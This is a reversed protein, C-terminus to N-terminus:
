SGGAPRHAFPWPWARFSLRFHIGIDQPDDIDDPYGEFPCAVYLSMDLAEAPQWRVGLGASAITEDSLQRDVANSGGGIDLFPILQVVGDDVNRQLAQIPLHAVPVRYELQAFWGRDRVLRNERYGRVTDIGGITIQEAPLLPDDTWQVGARLGLQHDALPAYQFLSGTAFPLWVTDVQGFWAFFKSCAQEAGDADRCQDSAGLVDLGLSFVSQAAFALERGEHRWTQGFRVVSVDGKGNKTGPAFSFDEGLLESAGHRREGSLDLTVDDLPTRWVPMSLGLELGGSDSKIDLDDFPDEIVKAASYDAVVRFRLDRANLPREYGLQADFSGRAVGVELRLPDGQGTLSKWTAIGALRTSGISPSQENALTTEITFPPQEQVEVGLLARGREESPLLRADIRAIMPDKLLIQLRDRLRDIDFPTGADLALRDAVYAPDLAATGAVEIRDLSGLVILIRLVGQSIDQDEIVAGSNVFGADIYRQTIADKLAFLESITVPRGEVPAILDDLEARGLPPTANDPAFALEIHAIRVLVNGALPTQARAEPVGLLLLAGLALVRWRPSSLASM